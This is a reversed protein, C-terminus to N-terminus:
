KTEDIKDVATKLDRVQEALVKLGQLTELLDKKKQIADRLERHAKRMTMVATITKSRLERIGDIRSKLQLYELDNEISTGHTQRIYSLYNQNIGFEEVKILEDINESRLFHLLNGTMVAILTDAQPVFRQIERAQKTRIYQRGGMVVLKGIAAGIGEPLGANNDIRNYRKILTDLSVGFGETQKTLENEYRDGSLLALSRAYKDIVKFTIDAKESVGYAHTRNFHVSDLVDLHLKPDSLSNAFWVGRITRIEALETMIKGPFASFNGSYRAFQNVSEIQTKTLSACGAMVISIASIFLIRNIKKKIYKVYYIYL